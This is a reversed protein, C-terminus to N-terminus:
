PNLAIMTCNVPVSSTVTTVHGSGSTDELLLADGTQFDRSQGDSATVRFRGSLCCLLQRGPTPHPKDGGWGVPLQIVVFGSAAQFSSVALPAAPPAFEQTSTALERADFHSEGRDDAYLRLYGFSAM